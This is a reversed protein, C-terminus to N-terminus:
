GLILLGIEAAMEVGAVLVIVVLPGYLIKALWSGRLVRRLCVEAAACSLVLVLLTTLWGDTM